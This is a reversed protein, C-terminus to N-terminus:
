KIIILKDRKIKKGNIIVEYMYSGQKLSQANVPVTKASPSLSYNKVVKGNSDYIILTGSETETLNCELQMIGNNPNPYLKIERGSLNPTQLVARSNNYADECDEEFELVNNAIFMLLNRSQYVANGGELACQNAIDYLAIMEEETYAIASDCRPLYIRNFTFQNEEIINDPLVNNSNVLAQTYNQNLMEDDVDRFLDM